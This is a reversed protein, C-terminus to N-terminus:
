GNMQAWLPRLPSLLMVTIHVFNRGTSRTRACEFLLDTKGLVWFRKSALGNVATGGALLDGMRLACVREAMRGAVAM